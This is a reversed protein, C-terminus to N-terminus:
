PCLSAVYRRSCPKYTLKTWDVGCHGKPQGALNYDFCRSDSVRSTPGWMLQCQSQLSWCQGKYCYAAVQMVVLLMRMLMM